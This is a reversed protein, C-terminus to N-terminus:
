EDAVGFESELRFDVQRASEDIRALKLSAFTRGRFVKKEGLQHLYTPILDARTASGALQIQQDVTNLNIGTLWVGRLPYRALGEIVPSFGRAMGPDFREFYTLLPRRGALEARMTELKKAILPDKGRQPNQMRLLQLEAALRARDVKLEALEGDSQGQQWRLTFTTIMLSVLCAFFIGTMLGAHLPPKREILVDQFLNIQQKM